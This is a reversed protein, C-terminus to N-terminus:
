RWGRFFKLKRPRTYESLQRPTRANSILEEVGYASRKVFLQSPLHGETFWRLLMKWGSLTHRAVPAKVLRVQLERKQLDRNTRWRKPQNEDDVLLLAPTGPPVTGVEPIAGYIAHLRGVIYQYTKVYDCVLLSNAYVIWSLYSEPSPDSSWVTRLRVPTVNHGKFAEVGCSERFLGTICSKDRNVLLGFSELLEIANAAEQQKVIVDDGYVYISERADRDQAGATLIAWITIAMVPFCLASGMPAFKNLKIIRGDPLETATSRAAMLCRVINEPWLLEVLGLSIRDSAEQLDLTAYRGDVSGLQAGRQNPGQDTFFVNGRTLPHEEVHKVLRRSIGQQIWQYDVPECSILRPGRSDKPVLVVRAPKDADGWSEFLKPNDALEGLSSIFYEDLSYESALKASVNTWVYKEWLKEKTSVAGPGHRPSIDKPDFSALLRAILIRAERGVREWSSGYTNRSITTPTMVRRLHYTRTPNLLWSRAWKRLSQNWPELDEDTRVFKQIVEVTQETTYPLEYKYFLYLIQRLTKVSRVCPYDLPHGQKDLVKQFLEGLFIPLQSDPAPEFGCSAANLKTGTLAKDLAKGLKPMAKTLFSLGEKEVRKRVKKCTKEADNSNFVAGHSTSVDHLLTAILVVEDLSKTSDMITNM